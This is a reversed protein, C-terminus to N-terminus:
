HGMHTKTTRKQLGHGEPSLDLNLMRQKLGMLFQHPIMKGPFLGFLRGEMFFRTSRLQILEASGMKWTHTKPSSSSSLSKPIPEAVSDPLIALPILNNYDQGVM